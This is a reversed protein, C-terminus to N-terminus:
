LVRQTPFSAPASSYSEESSEESESESESEMYQLLSSTQSDRVLLELGEVRKELEMIQLSVLHIARLIKREM